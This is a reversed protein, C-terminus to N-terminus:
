AMFQSAISLAHDANIPEDFAESGADAGQFQSVDIGLQMTNGESPWTSDGAYVGAQQLVPVNAEDGTVWGKLGRLRRVESAHRAEVSHIRLATTLIEHNSMLNGAQGKFARVGTDEFGQALTMFTQYDHFPDFKGGATFDFKPERVAKDGLASRFFAVHANEHQQIQRFIALDSSPIVGSAIAQNYFGSELYELTLGFNLTDIIEKPLAAKGFAKRAVMALLALGAGMRGPGRMAGRRSSTRQIGEPHELADLVTEKNGRDTHMTM